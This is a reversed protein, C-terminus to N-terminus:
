VLTNILYVLSITIFITLMVLQYISNGHYENHNYYLMLFLSIIFGVILSVILFAKLEEADASIVPNVIGLNPLICYVGLLLAVLQIIILIKRM